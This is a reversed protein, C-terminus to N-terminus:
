VVGSRFGIDLVEELRHRTDHGPQPLFGPHLELRQPPLLPPGQWQQYILNTHVAVVEPRATFEDLVLRQLEVVGSVAVQVLFDDRGSVHFMSRVHALGQVHAVFSAVKDRRHPRVQVALFAEIPRGTRAPDIRITYGLIVGADRLRSVRDLCTSPAVGAAAALERNSIRSNHQLRRLIELDVSDLSVSDSM